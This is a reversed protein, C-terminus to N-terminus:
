EDTFMRLPHVILWAPLSCVRIQKSDTATSQLFVSLSSFYHSTKPDSFSTLYFCMLSFFLFLHFYYPPFSGKSSSVFAYPLNTLSLQATGISVCLPLTGPGLTKLQLWFLSVCTTVSSSHILGFQLISRIPSQEECTSSVPSCSQVMNTYGSNGSPKTM